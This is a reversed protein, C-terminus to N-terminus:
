AREIARTLAGPITRRGSSSMRPLILGRVHGSRPRDASRQIRAHVAVPRDLDPEDLFEARGHALTGGVVDRLRQGQAAGGGGVPRHVGLYTLLLSPMSYTAIPPSSLFVSLM